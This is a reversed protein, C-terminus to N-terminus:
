IARNNQVTGSELHIYFHKYSPLLLLVDCYHSAELNKILRVDSYKLVASYSFFYEAKLSALTHWEDPNQYLKILTHKIKWLRIIHQKDAKNEPINYIKM